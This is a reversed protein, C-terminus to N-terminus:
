VTHSTCPQSQSSVNPTNSQHNSLSPESSLVPHMNPESSKTCDLAKSGLTSKGRGVIKDRNKHNDYPRFVNTGFGFWELYNLKWALIDQIYDPHYLQRNHLINDMETSHPLCWCFKTICAKPDVYYVLTDDEPYPRYLQKLIRRKICKKMQLDKTEHVLIYFPRDNFPNSTITDNLDDVLSKVLENSLDGNLVPSANSNQIALYEAGVTKRNPDFLSVNGSVNIKKTRKAQM